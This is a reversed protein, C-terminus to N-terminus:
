FSPSKELFVYSCHVSFHFVPGVIDVLRSRAVVPGIDPLISQLAISLGEKRTM